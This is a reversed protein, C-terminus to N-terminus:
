QKDIMRLMWDISDNYDEEAVRVGDVFNNGIIGTKKNHVVEYFMKDSLLKKAMEIGIFFYKLNLSDKGVGMLIFDEGGERTKRSYILNGPILEPRKM